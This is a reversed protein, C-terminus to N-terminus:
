RLLTHSSRARRRAPFEGLKAGWESTAWCAWCATCMSCPRCPGCASTGGRRRRRLRASLIQRERRGWCWSRTWCWRMLGLASWYILMHQQHRAPLLAGSHLLPAARPAPAVNGTVRLGQKAGRGQFGARWQVACARSHSHGPRLAQRDFPTSRRSRQPLEPLPSPSGVAAAAPCGEPAIRMLPPPAGSTTSDAGESNWSGSGGPQCCGGRQRTSAPSAPGEAPPVGARAAGRECAAGASQSTACALAGRVAWRGHMRIGRAWAPRATSSVGSRGALAARV